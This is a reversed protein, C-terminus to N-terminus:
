RPKFNASHPRRLLALKAQWLVRIQGDSNLPSEPCSPPLPRLRANHAAFIDVHALRIPNFDRLAQRRLQRNREPGCNVPRSQHQKLSTPKLERDEVDLCCPCRRGDVPNPQQSAGVHDKWEVARLDGFQTQWRPRVFNGPVHPRKVVLSNDRHRGNLRDGHRDSPQM